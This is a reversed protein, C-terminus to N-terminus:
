LNESFNTCKFQLFDGDSSSDSDRESQLWFLTINHLFINFLFITISGFYIYKLDRDADLFDGPYTSISEEVLTSFRARKIEPEIVEKVENGLKEKQCVTKQPALIDGSLYTLFSCHFVCVVFVTRRFFLVSIINEKQFGDSIFYLLNTFQIDKFLFSYSFPMYIIWCIHRQYIYM